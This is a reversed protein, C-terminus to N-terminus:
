LFQKMVDPEAFLGALRDRNSFLFQRWLPWDNQRAYQFPTFGRKDAVLFLTPDVATIWSCIEPQPDACWCCDHMPTRGYDDRIRVSLGVEDSLLFQVIDQFGRRCAMNLLGEGFRNYCVLADRGSAEFLSKLKDVDAQRCASVVDMNYAAMQEETIEDFYDDLELAPRVRPKVGYMAHILAGLYEDPNLTSKVPDPLQVNLRPLPIIDGPSMECCKKDRPEMRPSTPPPSESRKRQQSLTNRRDVLM